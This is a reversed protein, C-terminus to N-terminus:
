SVEATEKQAKSTDTRGLVGRRRIAVTIHFEGEGDRPLSSLGYSRRLQQLADSHISIWWVRDVGPWNDPEITKLRGFTYAFHKGRETIKDAGGLREVEDKTMVSVHAQLNDRSSSPPLEIGPENMASFTSRVLGNPVSLLLWGSADLYLMGSLCYSVKADAAAKALKTGVLHAIVEGLTPGDHSRIVSM